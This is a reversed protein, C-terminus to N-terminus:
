SAPQRAITASLSGLATWHRPHPVFAGRRIKSCYPKSLGTAKVMVGLSVDSLGPLIGSTFINPDPRTHTEEWRLNEQRQQFMVTARKRRTEQSQGSAARLTASRRGAELYVRTRCEDCYLGETPDGCDLCSQPPMFVKPERETPPDQRKGKQSRHTLPTPLNQGPLLMQAVRETVPRVHKAWRPGTAALHSALGSGVRCVGRRTEYFDAARFVHGELLDLLYDDVLPRVPEILGYVLSDRASKDFHYVGLGPDPGMGLCALRTEAAAISYLYNLM